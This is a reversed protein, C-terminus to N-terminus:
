CLHITEINVTTLAFEELQYWLFSHLLTLLVRKKINESVAVAPGM